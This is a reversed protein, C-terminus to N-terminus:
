QQLRPLRSRRQALKLRREFLIRVAVPPEVSCRSGSLSGAVLLLCRRVERLEHRNRFVSVGIPGLDRLCLREQCLLSGIEFRLNKCHFTQSNTGLVIHKSSFHRFITIARLRWARLFLGLPTMEVSPLFRLYKQSSKRNFVFETARQFLSLLFPGVCSFCFEKDQAQRWQGQAKHTRRPAAAPYFEGPLHESKQKAM